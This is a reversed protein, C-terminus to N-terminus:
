IYHEKSLKTEKLNSLERINEHIRHTNYAACIWQATRLTIAIKKM